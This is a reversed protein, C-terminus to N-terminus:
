GGIVGPINCLPEEQVPDLCVDALEATIRVLDSRSNVEVFARADDSREYRTCEYLHPWLAPPNDM